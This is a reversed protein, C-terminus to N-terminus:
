INNEVVINVCNVQKIQKNVTLVNNRITVNNTLDLYLEKPSTFECGDITLSDDASKKNFNFLYLPRHQVNIKDNIILVNSTSGSFSLYGYSIARDSQYDNNSIESDYLERIYVAEKFDRITNDKIEIYQGLTSIGTDFGSIQNGIIKNNHVRTVGSIGNNLIGISTKVGTPRQKLINNRITTNWFLSGGILNDCDNNEVLVDNATFLVIDGTYNGRLTNGRVFVHEIIQYSVYEGNVVERHAEMDIGLQPAVGASTYTKIKGNEDLINEGGGANTITCNEIYLYEGDGITINNRRSNDIVCNRVTVNKCFVPPNYQRHTGSAFIFGDGSSDKMTVGDVIVNHSGAAVVLSGWEHSDRSLGFGDSIPSYDHTYRDGIINGGKIEVNEKKFVNIVNYRPWKNPQVRIFTNSTMELKFNSPLSIGNDLTYEDLIFNGGVAVYCDMKDIVVTTVGYGVVRDIFNQIIEKNREAVEDSVVGEVIGWRKPDFEFIQSSLIPASGEIKLTKNLLGGPIITNRSFNITGNVIKCKDGTITVDPPLSFAGGGLDINSNLLVRDGPQVAMLDYLNSILVDYCSEKRSENIEKSDAM